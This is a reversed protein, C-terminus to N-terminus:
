RQWDLILYMYGASITMGIFSSNVSFPKVSNNDAVATFSCSAFSPVVSTIILETQPQEAPVARGPTNIATAFLPVGGLKKVVLKAPNSM